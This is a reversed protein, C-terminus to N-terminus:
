PLCCCTNNNGTTCYSNGGSENVEGNSTCQNVNRRCNGTSYGISSCYSACSDISSIPTPTPTNTPTSTPEEPSPTPTITPESTQAEYSVERWNTFVKSMEVITLKFPVFNWTVTSVVKKSNVDNSGGSVVIDGNEGRMVPEVRVVRTFKGLSDSSGVFEWVGSLSSIGYDGDTLNGWERNRISDSAELGQMAYFSAASEDRALRSNVLSGLITVVTASSIILFVSVAIVVEILTQGRCNTGRM